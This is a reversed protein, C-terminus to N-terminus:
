EEWKARVSEVLDRLEHRHAKWTKTGNAEFFEKLRRLLVVQDATFWLRGGHYQPEPFYQKKRWQRM